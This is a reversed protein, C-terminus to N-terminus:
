WAMWCNRHSFSQGVRNPSSVPMGSPSSTQNRNAPPAIGHTSPMGPGANAMWKTVTQSITHSTAFPGIRTGNMWQRIL